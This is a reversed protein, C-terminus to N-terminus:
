YRIILRVKGTIDVCIHVSLNSHLHCWNARSSTKSRARCQYRTQIRPAPLLCSALARIGCLFHSRRRPYRFICSGFFMYVYDPGLISYCPFRRAQQIPTFHYIGDFVILFRQLDLLLLPPIPSYRRVLRFSNLGCISFAM